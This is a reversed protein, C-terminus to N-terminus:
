LNPMASTITGSRCFITMSNTDWPHRNPYEAFRNEAEPVNDLYKVLARISNRARCHCASGQKYPPVIVEHWYPLVRAVTDKLCEALPHGKMLAPMGPIKVPRDNEGPEPAPPPVDYSRRGLQFRSRALAIWM